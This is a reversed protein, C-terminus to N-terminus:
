RGNSTRVSGSPCTMCTRTRYRITLRQRLAPVQAGSGVEATRLLRM